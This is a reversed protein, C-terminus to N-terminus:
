KTIFRLMEEEWENDGAESLFSSNLWHNYAHTYTNYWKGCNNQIETSNQQLVPNLTSKAQEEKIQLREM